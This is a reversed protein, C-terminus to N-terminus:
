SQQIQAMLQELDQPQQFLYRGDQSIYMVQEQDIDQLGGTRKPVTGTMVTTVKYLSGFKSSSVDEVTSDLSLDEKSVNELQQAAGELQQRQQKLQLDMFEQVKQEIKEPSLAEGVSDEPQTDNSSSNFLDGGLLAGAAFSLVLIVVIGGILGYVEKQELKDFM